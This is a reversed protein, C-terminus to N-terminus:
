QIKIDRMIGALPIAALFLPVLALLAIQLYYSRADKLIGVAAVTKGSQVDFVPTYAAVWHGAYDSTLNDYRPSDTKFTTHLAESAQSFNSGPSVYGAADPTKADAAVQVKGDRIVFLHIRGVDTNSNSVQQLSQKVHAYAQTSLDTQNGKLSTIDQIPLTDAITQARGVLYERQQVGSSLGAFLGSAVGAGVILLAVVTTYKKPKFVPKLKGVRLLKM